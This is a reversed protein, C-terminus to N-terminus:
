LSNEYDKWVGQAVYRMSDEQVERQNTEVQALNGQEILSAARVRADEMFEEFTMDAVAVFYQQLGDHEVIEGIHWLVNERSTDDLLVENEELSKMLHRMLTIRGNRQNTGKPRGVRITDRGRIPLFIIRDDNSKDKHGQAEKVVFRQTYLAKFLARPDCNKWVDWTLPEGNYSLQNCDKISVELRWVDKVDLEAERWCDVIYPKSWWVGGMADLLEKTKYYMKWKVATTKHGWSICHCINRNMYREALKPNTVASWFSSGNRKGGIYAEGMALRQMTFWQSPSPNFDVCLDLRSIGKVIFTRWDALMDVLKLVSIGHYLWENAVEILGARSDIISSKPEYLITAVKEAYENFLIRRKRWVNTGDMDVFMHSAPVERWDSNADFLVSLGLWDCNLLIPQTSTM